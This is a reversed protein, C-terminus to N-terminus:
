FFYSLRFTFLHPTRRVYGLYTGNEKSTYQRIIPDYYAYGPEIIFGSNNDPNIKIALTVQGIFNGKHKEYAVGTKPMPQIYAGTSYDFVYGANLGLQPMFRKKQPKFYLNFKNEYMVQIQTIEQNIKATYISVVNSSVYPFDNYITNERNIFFNVGVGSYYRNNFNRYYATSFGQVFNSREHIFTLYSFQYVNRKNNFRGLILISDKKTRKKESFTQVLIKSLKDIEEMNVSITDNQTPRYMKILKGPQQEVIYGLYQYGNKLTILDQDRQPQQAYTLLSYILVIITLYYKTKM